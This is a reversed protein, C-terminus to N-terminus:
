GSLGYICRRRGTIHRIEHSIEHLSQVRGTIDMGDQDTADSLKLKDMNMWKDIAIPTCRPQERRKTEITGAVIEFVQERDALEVVLIAGCEIGGDLADAVVAHIQGDPQVVERCAKGRLHVFDLLAARLHDLNIQEHALMSQIVPLLPEEHEQHLISFQGDLIELLGLGFGISAGKLTVELFQDFAANDDALRVRM